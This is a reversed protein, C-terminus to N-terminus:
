MKREILIVFWGTSAIRAALVNREDMDIDLVDPENVSAAKDLVRETIANIWDFRSVAKDPDGVKALGASSRYFLAAARKASNVREIEAELAPDSADIALGRSDVIVAVAANRQTLHTLVKRSFQRLTIDHSVVGLLRDDDYVPYSATIMLGAGVLDLYPATWGVAHRQFDAATYFVQKTPLANNVAQDLPVYPYILMMDDATTLYVWSFAFSSYAARFLPLAHEFNRLHGLTEDAIPFGRYSYYSPFTAEFDPAPKGEPWTRFGVTKGQAIARRTWYTRDAESIHAKDAAITRYQDGLARTNAAVDRFVLDIRDAALRVLSISPREGVEALAPTM